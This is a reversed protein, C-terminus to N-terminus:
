ILSSTAFIVFKNLNGGSTLFGRFKLCKPVRNAM